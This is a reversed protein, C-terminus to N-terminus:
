WLSSTILAISETHEFYSQQERKRKQEKIIWSRERACATGKRERCAEGAGDIGYLQKESFWLYLWNFTLFVSQCTEKAVIALFM